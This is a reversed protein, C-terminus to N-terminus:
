AGKAYFMFVWENRVFVRMFLVREHRREVLVCAKRFDADGM